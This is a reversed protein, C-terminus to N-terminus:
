FPSRSFGSKQAPDAITTQPDYIRILANASTFTQSFDGSKQMTTPVNATPTSVGHDNIQEWNFFFFTKNRGDYVKPLYVPGSATFGYENHRQRARLAGNRNNAWSNANLKDNKLYDYVSGHVQNAGTKGAAAVIGGASRGYEASFNNTIFRVEGVTEQPPTYANDLTSNNRTDQGDFLIANTNSRGGSVIPGTGTNGTAIVGPSLNLLSYPSRNTPLELIQTTGTVYGLSAGVQEILVANGKITIEDHVTGPKLTVNITAVQGVLVPVDTVRDVAFGDKEVTVNYKGAPLYPLKYYGDVTTETRAVTGTAQNTATVKASPISAGTSDVVIGTIAGQEVQALCLIGNTAILLTAILLLMKRSM